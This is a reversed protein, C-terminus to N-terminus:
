FKSSFHSRTIPGFNGLAPEIGVQAQFEALAARTLPGFYSTAGAKALANAAPGRDQSSLFAQLAQVDAGRHGVSLNRAIVKVSQGLANSSKMSSNTVSSNFNSNAGNSVSGGNNNSSSTTNTQSSTQTQTQAPASNTTTVPAPTSVPTPVSVTSGSSLGTVTNADLTVATHALARGTLKAGTNLVIATKSIINGSIESVSGMTVQGGVIWFVNKAQAGGSLIVKTGSSLTLTQAIQFIWVDNSGGSLTVNSPIIVATGWKYLGPAVTLGGINGAGLETATPNSRGAGNTYATEMDSIATGLTSPTPAAYSAAFVKGTVLPTTAYTTDTSVSLGFGTIATATIPSVGIDGTIRTVGTTSIGSKSLITFNAASGLNISDPGAASVTSAGSLTLVSLIALTM